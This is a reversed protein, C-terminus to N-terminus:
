SGVVSIMQMVFDHCQCEHKKLVADMVKAEIKKYEPMLAKFPTMIDSLYAESADHLLAYLCADKDKGFVDEVFKSLIVSHEAVSYFGKTIPYQGNYRCQRALGTAIDVLDWDNEDLNRLSHQHKSTNFWDFEVENTGVLDTM